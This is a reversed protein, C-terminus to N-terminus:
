EMLSWFYKKKYQLEIQKYKSLKQKLRVYELSFYTAPLAVGIGSGILSYTLFSRIYKRFSMKIEEISTSLFRCNKFIELYLSMLVIQM